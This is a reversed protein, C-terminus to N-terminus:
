VILKAWSMLPVLLSYFRIVSWMDVLSTAPSDGTKKIIIVSSKKEKGTIVTVEFCTKSVTIVMVLM